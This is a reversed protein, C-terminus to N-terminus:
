QKRRDKPREADKREREERAKREADEKRKREADDREKREGDEKRARRAAEEERAKREREADADREREADKREADRRDSDKRDGERKREADKRDGEKRDDDRRDDDKANRIREKLNAIEEKKDKIANEIREIKQRKERSDDMGRARELKAQLAELEKELQELKAAPREVRDNDQASVYQNDVFASGAMVCVALAGVKIWQKASMDKEEIQHTSLWPMMGTLEAQTPVEGVKVLVQGEVDEVRHGDKVLAPAGSKVVYWGSEVQLADLGGGLAAPTFQADITAAVNDPLAVSSPTSPNPKPDTEPMVILILLAAIGAAVVGEMAYKLWPKARLGGKAAVRPLLRLPAEAAAPDAGQAPASAAVAVEVGTAARLIIDALEPRPGGHFIEELADDLLLDAVYTAQDSM